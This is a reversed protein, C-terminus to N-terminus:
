GDIEANGTMRLVGAADRIWLDYGGARAQGEAHVTEGAFVPQVGRFNFRRIKSSGHAECARLMLTALLQGQVIVGPYGEVGTAYALDYHIRHANFTVASYRFVMAEDPRHPVSWLATQPAQKGVPTAAGAPPHDRYVLTQTEELMLTGNSEYRNAVKVFVLAGTEGQKLSIDAIQATKKLPDGLRIPAHFTIDSSAWMRRPLEVPPLFGGRRPHGDEGIESQGVTPGFYLWQVLLPATMGNACTVPDDLLARLGEVPWADATAERSETRNMWPMLTAIDM